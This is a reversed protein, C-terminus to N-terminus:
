LCLVACYLWENMARVVSLMEVASMAIGMLTTRILM